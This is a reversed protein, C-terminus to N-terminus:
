NIKMFPMNNEHHCSNCNNTLATMNTQLNGDEKKTAADRIAALPNRIYKEVFVAVPEKLKDNTIQLQEMKEFVELLEDAEYSVRNYDKHTIALAMRDHHYEVQMMFEGLGPKLQNVLTLLSDASLQSSSMQKSNQSCAFAFVLFILIFLVYGIRM